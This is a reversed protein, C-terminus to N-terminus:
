YLLDKLKGQEAKIDALLSNHFEIKYNKWADEEIDFSFKGRGTTIKEFTALKEGKHGLFAAFWVDTTTKM